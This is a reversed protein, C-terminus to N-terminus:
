RRSYYQSKLMGRLLPAFSLWDAELEDTARYVINGDADLVVLGPFLNVGCFPEGSDYRYAGAAFPFGAAGVRPLDSAPSLTGGLGLFRVGQAKMESVVPRLTEIQLDLNEDDPLFFWLVTLRCEDDSPSRTVGDSFRVGAFDDLKGLIPLPRRIELVDVSAESEEIFDRGIQRLMQRHTPRVVGMTQDVRKEVDAAALGHMARRLIRDCLEVDRVSYLVKGLTEADSHRMVVALKVASEPEGEARKALRTAEKVVLRRRAAVTKKQIRRSTLMGNLLRQLSCTRVNHWLVGDEPHFVVHQPTLVDASGLVFKRTAIELHVLQEASMGFASAARPGDGREFHCAIVPIFKRSAEIFRKHRYVSQLMAENGPEGVQHMVVLLPKGTECAEARAAALDTRWAVQDGALAGPGTAALAIAALTATAMGRRLGYSYRHLNTLPSFM